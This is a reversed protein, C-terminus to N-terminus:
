IRADNRRPQGAPAAARTEPKRHVYSEPTNGTRRHASAGAGSRLMRRRRRTQTGELLWSLCPVVRIAATTASRYGSSNPLARGRPLTGRRRRWGSPASAKARSAARLSKSLWSASRRASARSSQRRTMRSSSCRMCTRSHFLSVHARGRCICRGVGLCWGWAPLCRSVCRSPARSPARHSSRSRRARICFSLVKGGARCETSGFRSRRLSVEVTARSIGAM